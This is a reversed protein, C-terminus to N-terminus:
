AWIHLPEANSVLAILKAVGPMAGSMARAPAASLAMYQRGVNPPVVIMKVVGPMAGHVVRATEVIFVGTPRSAVIWDPAIMKANVM